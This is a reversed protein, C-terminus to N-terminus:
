LSNYIELVFFFVRRSRETRMHFWTGKQKPDVHFFSCLGNFAPLFGFFELCYCVLGYVIGTISYIVM